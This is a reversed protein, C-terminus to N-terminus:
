IVWSLTSTRKVATLLQDMVNSPVEFIRIPVVLRTESPKHFYVADAYREGSEEVLVEVRSRHVMGM